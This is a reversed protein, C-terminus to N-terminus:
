RFYVGPPQIVVAPPQLFVAPPMPPYPMGISAGRCIQRERYHGRRDYGGEIRCGPGGYGGRYSDYGHRHHHERYGHRDHRDHHGHGAFSPLSLSIALCAFVTRFIRHKM